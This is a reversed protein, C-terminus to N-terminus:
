RLRGLDTKSLLVVRPRAALETSYGAIERTLIELQRPRPTSRPPHPISSCSWSVPGSSTACSSTASARARTGSRRDPGPHRGLRVRSRGPQRCRSQARPHHVPLRRDQAQRCLGELHVDVQRRQSLRHSGRRRPAEDRPHVVRGPRVGRARRDGPSTQCPQRIRREGSRRTRWQVAVVEQGPEVLDAIMVGDDDFVVTGPRSPFSWTPVRRERQAHRRPRSDGERRRSTSQAPLPPAHGGLPRSAPHRRWGKGRQGRGAQRQAPREEQRLLCGRGWRRRGAPRGPGPRRVGVEPLISVLRRNARVGYKVTGASLAFLTDDSGKGVNDGPHIGTGRQRVLIAGATVTQGDFVKPGLRKAHSERGNKSSGGAKTKSM